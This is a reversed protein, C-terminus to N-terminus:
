QVIFKKTLLRKNHNITIFYIGNAYNNLAINLQNGSFSKLNFIREGILNFVNVEANKLQQNTQISIIKQAPNPYVLLTIDESKEKELIDTTNTEEVLIPLRPLQNFSYSNGNVSYTNSIFVASDGGHFLQNPVVQTVKISNNTLGILTYPQNDPSWMVWKNENNVVFHIVWVGNGGTTNNNTVLGISVLNVSSFDSIKENLLKYSHFSKKKIGHNSILGFEGWGNLDGSSWNSHWLVVEAGKAWLLCLRRWVDAAQEDVSSYSPTISSINFSSIATETIWIPKNLGFQSLISKVSDYHAPLTWWANYDHYNMIDFYNGAGAGLMNRLWNFSNSMPYDCCTGVLGPLLVKATSDAQKIWSYNYRLFEKKTFINPLGPPPLASEIENAVEWYKTVNKYRNITKFVYDKSYISDGAPDWYCIFPNSCALWPTQLGITDNGMMSYLTGIPILSYPNFFSSDSRSFDWNNDSM